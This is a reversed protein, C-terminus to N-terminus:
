TNSENTLSLPQCGKVIMFRALLLSDLKNGKELDPNMVFDLTSYPDGHLLLSMDHM